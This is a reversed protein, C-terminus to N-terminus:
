GNKQKTGELKHGLILRVKVGQFLDSDGFLDLELDATHVKQGVAIKGDAGTPPLHEHDAIGGPSGVVREKGPAEM